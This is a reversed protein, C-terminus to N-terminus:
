GKLSKIKARLLEIACLADKESLVTEEMPCMGDGKRNKIVPATEGYTINIGKETLFKLAEESVTRGYCSKVGGAYFIMAAAKGIIIDCDFADKLLGRDYLEMIHSIGRTKSSDIVKGDKILILSVKGSNIKKVAEKVAASDPFFRGSLKLVSPILVLQLFVGPIGSLIMSVASIKTAKAFLLLTGTLAYAAKGALIGPILSLYIHKLKLSHNFKKHLSGSVATLVVLDAAIFVANPFLPPMVTLLSSLFPTLLATLAGYYPGAFYCAFIVPIYMPLFINGKVIMLGHSIFFPLYIGLALMLAAFVTKGSKSNLM